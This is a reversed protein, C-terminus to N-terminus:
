AISPLLSSRVLPAPSSISRESGAKSPHCGARYSPPPLYASQPRAALEEASPSPLAVNAIMTNTPVIWVGSDRTERATQVAAGFEAPSLGRRLKIFDHEADAQDLVLQRTEDPGGAVLVTQGHLANEANLTIENADRCAYPPYQQTHAVSSHILFAWFSVHQLM